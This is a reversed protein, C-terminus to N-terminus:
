STFTARTGRCPHIKTTQAATGTPLPRPARGSAATSASKTYWNGLTQEVLGLSKAVDAITGQEDIVMAAADKPRGGPKPVVQNGSM